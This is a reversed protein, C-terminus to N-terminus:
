AVDMYMDYLEQQTQEGIHSTEIQVDLRRMEIEIGDLRRGAEDLVDRQCALQDVRKQMVALEEARQRDREELWAIRKCLEKIQDLLIRTPSPKTGVAAATPTELSGSTVSSSKM